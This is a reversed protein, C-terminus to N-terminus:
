ESLNRADTLKSAVTETKTPLSFGKGAAMAQLVEAAKHPPTPLGMEADMVRIMQLYTKEKRIDLKGNPIPDSHPSQGAGKSGSHILGSVWVPMAYSSSQLFRKLEWIEVSAYELPNAASSSYGELQLGDAYWHGILEWTKDGKLAPNRCIESSIEMHLPNESTSSLLNRRVYESSPYPIVTGGVTGLGLLLIQHHLKKIQLKFNLNPTM